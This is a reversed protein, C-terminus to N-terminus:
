SSSYTNEWFPALREAPHVPCTVDFASIPPYPILPDELLLPFPIFVTVASPPTEARIEFSDVTMWFSYRFAFAFFVHM